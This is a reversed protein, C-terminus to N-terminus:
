ACCDRKKHNEIYEKTAALILETHDAYGGLDQGTQIWGRETATLKLLLKEIGRAKEKDRLRQAREKGDMAM